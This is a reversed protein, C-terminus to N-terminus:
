SRTSALGCTGRSYLERNKRRLLGGFAGERDAGSEMLKVAADM